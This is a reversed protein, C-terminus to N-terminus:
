RALKNGHQLWYRMRFRALTADGGRTWSPSSTAHIPTYSFAPETVVEAPILGADNRQVKDPQGNALLGCEM